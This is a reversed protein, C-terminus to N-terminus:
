WVLAPLQTLGQTALAMTTGTLAPDAPVGGVKCQVYSYKSPDFGTLRGYKESLAGDIDWRLGATVTLNKRMKFNDNIYTGLPIPAITVTASGVFENGGHM